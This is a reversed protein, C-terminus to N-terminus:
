PPHLTLHIIIIPCKNVSERQRVPEKKKVVVVVVFLHNLFCNL